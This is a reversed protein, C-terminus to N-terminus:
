QSVAKEKQLPRVDLEQKTEGKTWPSIAPLPDQTLEQTAYWRGDVQHFISPFEAAYVPRGDSTLHYTLIVYPGTVVRRALTLRAQSFTSKWLALQSAPTIKHQEEMKETVARSPPDWVSLWAGYDANMMDSIRSIMAQEPTSFSDESKAHAEITFSPQYLQETYPFHDIQTIEKAQAEGAKFMPFAWTTHEMVAHARESLPVDPKKEEAAPQKGVNDTPSTTATTSPKSALVKQQNQSGTTASAPAKDPATQQASGASSFGSLLALLVAIQAKCQMFKV